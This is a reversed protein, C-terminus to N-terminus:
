NSLSGGFIYKVGKGKTAIGHKSLEDSIAKCVEIKKYGANNIKVTISAPDDIRAFVICNKNEVMYRSKKQKKKNSLDVNTMEQWTGFDGKAAYYAGVDKIAQKVNNIGVSVMADDRTAALKVVAVSALIGIIVIVFVLEVMTFAHRYNKM